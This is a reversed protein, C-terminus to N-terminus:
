VTFLSICSVKPKVTKHQKQHKRYELAESSKHLFAPVVGFIKFFQLQAPNSPPPGIRKTPCTQCVLFRRKVFYIDQEASGGRCVWAHLKRAPNGTCLMPWTWLSLAQLELDPDPVDALHTATCCDCLVRASQQCTCGTGHLRRPGRPM